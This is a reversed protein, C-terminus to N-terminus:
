EQHKEIFFNGEEVVGTDVDIESISVITVFDGVKLRELTCGPCYRVGGDEILSIYTDTGVVMSVVGDRHHDISFELNEPSISVITGNSVNKRYYREVWILRPDAAYDLNQTREYAKAGFIRWIGNEQVFNDFKYSFKSNHYGWNLFVYWGSFFVMLILVFPLPGRKISWWIDTVRTGASLKSKDKERNFMPM